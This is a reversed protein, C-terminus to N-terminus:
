CRVSVALGAVAAYGAPQPRWREEGAQTPLEGNCCIRALGKGSVAGLAM